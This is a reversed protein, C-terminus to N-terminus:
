PRLLYKEDLMEILHPQLYRSFFFVQNGQSKLEIALTLCRMFHGVGIKQSADTRFAVLMAESKGVLGDGMLLLIAVMLM